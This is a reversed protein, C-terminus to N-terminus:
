VYAYPCVNAISEYKYTSFSFIFLLQLLLKTITDSEFVWLSIAVLTYRLRRDCGPWISNKKEKKEGKENLPM